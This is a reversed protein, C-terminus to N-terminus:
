PEVLLIIKARILKKNCASLASIVMVATLLLSLRKKVKESKMKENEEPTKGGKMKRFFSFYYIEGKEM